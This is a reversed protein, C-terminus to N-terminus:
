NAWPSAASSFLSRSLTPPNLINQYDKALRIPIYSKKADETRMIALKRGNQVLTCGRDRLIHRLLDLAQDNDLPQNSWADVAENVAVNRRVEVTFGAADSVYDLVARLPANRFNLTLPQEATITQADASNEPIANAPRSSPYNPHKM